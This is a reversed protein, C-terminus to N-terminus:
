AAAENLEAIQAPTMAEVRELTPVSRGDYLLQAVGLSLGRQSRLAYLRDEWEDGGVFGEPVLGPALDRIVDAIYTM